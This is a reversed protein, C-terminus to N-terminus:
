KFEVDKNFEVDKVYNEIASLNKLHQRINHRIGKCIEDTFPKEGKKTVLVLGGTGDKEICHALENRTCIIDQLYSSCFDKNDTLDKNNLLILIRGLIRVKKYADFFGENLLENMAINHFKKEQKEAKEQLNGIIDEFIYARIKEVEPNPFRSFFINIINFVKYDLDSTESMVLGRVTSIDQTKKITSLLVKEVKERFQEGKRDAIYVGDIFNDMLIKRIGPLDQSYFIIETFIKHDRISKIITDGREGRDLQYDVLILDFRKLTSDAELLARVEDEKKLHTPCFDFGNENLLERVFKLAPKLWTQENEIWLINYKIRM